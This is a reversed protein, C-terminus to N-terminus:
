FREASLVSTLCALCSNWVYKYVMGHFVHTSLDDSCSAFLPYRSHFAVQRLALKHFRALHTKPLYALLVCQVYDDCAQLSGFFFPLAGCSATPSPHSTWTSGACAAITAEWWSITVQLTLSRPCGSEVGCVLLGKTARWAGGPHVAMSSVWKCGTQLTKLLM